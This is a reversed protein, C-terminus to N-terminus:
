TKRKLLAYAAVFSPATFIAQFVIMFGFAAGFFAFPPAPEGPRSPISIFFTLFFVAFLLMFFLQFAGHAIFSYAVYKNHQEDAM